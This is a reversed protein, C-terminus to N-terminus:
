APSADHAPEGSSRPPVGTRLVMEAHAPVRLAPIVAKRSPMPNPSPPDCRSSLRNYYEAFVPRLPRTEGETAGCAFSTWQITLDPTSRQQGRNTM